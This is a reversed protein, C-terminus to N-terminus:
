LSVSETLAEVSRAIATLLDNANYLKEALPVLMPRPADPATSDSETPRRIPGLRKTLVDVAKALRDIREILRECEHTVEGTERDEVYAAKANADEYM